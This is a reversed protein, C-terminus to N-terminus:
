EVSLQHVDRLLAALNRKSEALTRTKNLLKEMERETLNYQHQIHQQLWGIQGEATDLKLSRLNREQAVTLEGGVRYFIGRIARDRSSLGCVGCAARAGDPGRDVDAPTLQQEWPCWGFEMSGGSTLVELWAAVQETKLKM